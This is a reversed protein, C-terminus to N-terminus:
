KRNWVGSLSDVHGSGTTDRSVRLMRGFFAGERAGQENTWMGFCIQTRDLSTLSAREERGVHCM